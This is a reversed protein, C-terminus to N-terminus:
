KRTLRKAGSKANHFRGGEREKLESSSPLATNATPSLLCKITQFTKAGWYINVTNSIAAKPM